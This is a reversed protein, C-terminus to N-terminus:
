DLVVRKLAGTEPYFEVRSADPPLSKVVGIQSILLNASTLERGQFILSIRVPEPIRYFFGNVTASPADDALGDTNGAPILEIRLDSGNGRTLGNVPSFGAIVAEAESKRPLYYLSFKETETRVAGLFLKLYEGKLRDLERIMLDLAKEDYPTEQYGVLLNYKDQEIRNIRSLADRALEKVSLPVFSSRYERTEVITTDVAMKRIVTDIVEILMPRSYASFLLSPDVNSFLDPNWTNGSKAQDPRVQAAGAVLGSQTFTLWTEDTSKEDHEVFYYHDPDPEAVAMIEAKEIRFHTSQNRVVEKQGLYEEAYDVFPGPFRQERTVWVDVRVVTRPLAYLVGKKGATGAQSKLPTVKVQGHSLVPLILSFFVILFKKSTM